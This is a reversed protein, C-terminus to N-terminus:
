RFSRIIRALCLKLELLAFRMGICKRPGAGFPIWAMPHHEKRAAATFRGPDFRDPDPWLTPDHHIQWVPVFISVGKPITYSGVAIERDVERITFTVVPPFLRLSECLVQDLYKLNNM